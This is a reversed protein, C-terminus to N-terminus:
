SRLQIECFKLPTLFSMESHLHRPFTSVFVAVFLDCDFLALLPLFNFLSFADWHDWREPEMVRSNNIKADVCPSLGRALLGHGFSKDHSNPFRLTLWNIKSLNQLTSLTTPAKTQKM